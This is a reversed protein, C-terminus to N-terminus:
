ISIPDVDVDVLENKCFHAGRLLSQSTKARTLSFYRFKSNIRFVGEEGDGLIELNQSSLCQKLECFNNYATQKNTHSVSFKVLKTFPPYLDKRYSIEDKLFIEYDDLYSIFFDSNSSQVIVEGKGSRGARGAVQLLLSIAKERARYSYSNLIYDIGLVIVLSVDHYDHGKSLMQTGVLVDIEKKQFRNLIAKLKSNTTISDRDFKEVVMDKFHVKISDIVEQTGVRQSIFEECKCESCQAQLPATFNCYHCKLINRYNHVSMGVDCYPCKLNEGCVKCVLYKFNARTPVFIIAQKDNEKCEKIKDYVINPIEECLPIFHIQKSSNFYTGKLRVIPQKVYSSLSPTASGLVVKADLVKGFYIAMDKANYRPNSNSKYSDDHEEDVIILGINDNPIFLASRAGAIIKISGDCINILIEEKKKKTLKSHWMAVFSGFQKKLRKQIQPTLSIEPLLLVANKGNNICEEILKIYIETKGSGTDGFLLSTQNQKIEKFCRDQESSLTIDTKITVQKHTIATPLTTFIASVKSLESVYYKVMFDMIQIYKKSFIYEHVKLIDNCKFSPKITKKFVIANKDKNRIAVTILQYEEIDKVSQYTLIPSKQGIIVVEYYNM